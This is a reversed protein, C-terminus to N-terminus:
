VEDDEILIITAHEDMGSIQNRLQATEKLILIMKSIDKARQQHLQNPTWGFERCLNFTTIDEDPLNM